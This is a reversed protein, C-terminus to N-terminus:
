LKEVPIRLETRPGNAGSQSPDGQYVQMPAGAPRYGNAAVWQLLTGWAATSSEYPGENVLIASLAGPIEKVEFPAAAKVEPGVPVGVEWTLEAEAVSTPSNFYRGFPAGLPSQGLGGLYMFLRGFVDEHQMYSGKMPLVLAHIADTTKVLVPPAASKEPAPPQQGQAAGFSGMLVFSGVLTLARKM